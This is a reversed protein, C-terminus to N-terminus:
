ESNKENVETNNLIETFHAYLEEVLGDLELGSAFLEKTNSISKVNDNDDEIELNEIRELFANITRKRDIQVSMKQVMDAGRQELDFKRDLLKEKLEISPVNYVVVIPRTDNENGNWKPIYKGTKATSLKVKM